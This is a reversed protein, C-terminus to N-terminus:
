EEEEEEEGAAADTATLTQGVKALMLQCIGAQARPKMKAFAKHRKKDAYLSEKLLQKLCIPIGDSVFTDLREDANEGSHLFELLGSEAAMDALDANILPEGNKRSITKLYKVVFKRAIKESHLEQGTEARDNGGAAQADEDVVLKGSKGGRDKRKKVKKSNEVVREEDVGGRGDDEDENNEDDNGAAARGKRAKDSSSTLSEQKAKGQEVAGSAAEEDEPSKSSQQSSSSTATESESNKCGSNIGLLLVTAVTVWQVSRM